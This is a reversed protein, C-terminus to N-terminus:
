ALRQKIDFKGSLDCESYEYLDFHTTKKDADTILGDKEDLSGGCLANGISNDINKHTNKLNEFLQVALKKEEFCSLAYGSPNLRGKDADSQMREPKQIYVPKHNNIHEYDFVYRYALKSQPVDLSPLERGNEFLRNLETQYKFESM